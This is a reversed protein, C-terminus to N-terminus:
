APQLGFAQAGYIRIMKQFLRKLESDGGRVDVEVVVKQTAMTAPQTASNPLIMGSRNPVFLEPGEEGVVYAEGAKVPGGKARYGAAVYAGYQAYYGSRLRQLVIDNAIVDTYIQIRLGNLQEAQRKLRQYGDIIQNVQEETYYGQEQLDRLAPILINLDVDAAAAMAGQMELTARTLDLLAREYEPTGQKGEAILRNVEAQAQTVRDQANYYWYLPNTSELIKDLYTDLAGAAERWAGASADAAAATNWQTDNGAELAAFYEPFLKKLKELPFEQLGMANILAQFADVAEQTRGTRVMQALADDTARVREEMNSVTWNFKSGIGTFQDITRTWNRLWDPVANLEVIANRLGNLDDGFLRAAEGGVQGTKALREFSKALDNTRPNLDKGFINAVTTGAIAVSMLYSGFAGAAIGLRSFSGTGEKGLTIFRGFAANYLNQAALAGKTAVSLAVMSLVIPSLLTNVVGMHESMVGLANAFAQLLPVAAGLDLQSIIDVVQKVVEWLASGVQRARDWMETIRQQGEATALWREFARSGEVLRGLLTDDAGLRIIERLSRGWSKFLENLLHGTRLADEIWQHARGTARVEASWRRWKEAHSDVWAGLRPMFDAGVRVWDLFGDFFKGFATGVRQWMVAMLGLSEDIDRVRDARSAVGAISLFMNNWGQAIEPLQRRMVPLYLDSLHQVAEAVGAWLRDQVAQQVERWAPGLARLTDVLKRANKSLRSYADDGGGGGAGGQLAENLAQQAEQLEYLADAHRETAERVEDSGEVGKAMREQYEQEVDELRNLAEIHALRAERLELDARLREMRDGSSRAERLRLEAERIALATREVDLKAGEYETQIDRLRDRAREWADNLDEQADRLSRAALEMRRQASVVQNASTGAGGGTRKMAAGLGVFGLILSAVGAAGATMLTPLTGLVGVLRSIAGTLAVAHGAVSALAGGILLARAAIRRASARMANDIRFVETATASGSRRASHAMREQSASMQRELAAIGAAMKALKPLM